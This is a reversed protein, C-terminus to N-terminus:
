AVPQWAKPRRGVESEIVVSQGIWVILQSRLMLINQASRHSGFASKFPENTILRLGYCGLRFAFTQEAGNKAGAMCWMLWERRAVRHAKEPLKQWLRFSRKLRKSGSM